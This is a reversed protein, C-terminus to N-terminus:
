QGSTPKAYAEALRLWHKPTRSGSRSRRKPGSPSVGVSVLFDLLLKRQTSSLVELPLTTSSEHPWATSRCKITLTTNTLTIHASQPPASTKRDMVYFSEQFKVVRDLHGSLVYPQALTLPRGYRNLAEKQGEGSEPGWDMEMRFSLEVAPKGNALQVTECTDDAFQELYWIVSRVLTERTKLNHSGTSPAPAM